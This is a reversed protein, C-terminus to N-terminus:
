STVKSEKVSNVVTDKHHLHRTDCGPGTVYEDRM